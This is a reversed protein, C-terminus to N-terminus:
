LRRAVEEKIYKLEDETFGDIVDITIEESGNRAAAVITDIIEEKEPLKKTVDVITNSQYDKLIYLNFWKKM